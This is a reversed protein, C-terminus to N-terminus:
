KVFLKVFGLISVIMGAGAAVYIGADLNFVSLAATVPAIFIEVVKIIKEILEKKSAKAEKKAM